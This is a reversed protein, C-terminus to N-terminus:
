FYSNLFLKVDVKIKNGSNRRKLRGEKELALFFAFPGVSWCNLGVPEEFDSIGTLVSNNVAKWPQCYSGSADMGTSTHPILSKSSLQTM